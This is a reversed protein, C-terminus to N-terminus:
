SWEVCSVLDKLTSPDKIINGNVNKITPGDEKIIALVSNFYDEFENIFSEKCLDQDAKTMMPSFVSNLEAEKPTVIGVEFNFALSQTTAYFTYM